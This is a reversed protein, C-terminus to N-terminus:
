YLDIFCSTLEKKFANHSLSKLREDLENWLKRGDGTYRINFRGYNTRIKSLSSRTAFRTKVNQMIVPMKGAEFQHMFYLTQFKIITM